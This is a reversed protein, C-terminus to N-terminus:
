IYSYVSLRHPSSPAPPSHQPMENAPEVPSIAYATADHGNQSESPTCDSPCIRPQVEGVYDYGHDRAGEGHHPVGITSSSQYQHPASCRDEDGLVFAYGSGDKQLSTSTSVPTKYQHPASCRDEDGLVFAYGSRDRQLSASTSVPTEYERPETRGGGTLTSKSGASAVQIHTYSPNAMMIVNSTSNSNQQIDPQGFVEISAYETDNKKDSDSCLTSVM